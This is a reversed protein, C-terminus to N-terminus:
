RQHNVQRDYVKWVDTLVDKVTVQHTTAVHEVVLLVAELNFAPDAGLEVTGKIEDRQQTLTARFKM